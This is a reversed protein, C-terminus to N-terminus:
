RSKVVVTRTESKTNDRGGKKLREVERENLPTRNQPMAELQMNIVGVQRLEEEHSSSYELKILRDMKEKPFKAGKERFEHWLEAREIFEARMQEIEEKECLKELERRNRNFVANIYAKEIKLARENAFCDINMNFYEDARRSLNKIDSDMRAKIKKIKTIRRNELWEKVGELLGM